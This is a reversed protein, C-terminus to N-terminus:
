TGAPRGFEALPRALGDYAFHQLLGTKVGTDDLLEPDLVVVDAWRPWLKVLAVEELELRKVGLQGLAPSCAFRGRRPSAATLPPGAPPERQLVPM